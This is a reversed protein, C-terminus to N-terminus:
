AYAREKFPQIGVRRYTDVFREGETRLDLYTNLVEEIVDPVADAAFSPGLIDGISADHDSNGGLTIQYFEAGKKDVGLIGINGVHHHGCANMCGSINLDLHGLDYVKDLDEFRRTIAEAIPISKANALSCFDGGPCSIIDTIFGIHARAMNHQELAQWVDFLDKQPVDALAINQEHTTRLEGFTYKDALDAIFNMEETTMDGPAIGARKLSITVIRYGKVKHAHTNINFWQKFKPHESFLDTFDEDALDQYDFPTFEEDLKKLIEPQIKLAERTHEFEAEVKQAFVEPTLAKVLIKIRAKYKNDRRGHLNYVRLVAELYAILDERPLFERIVSGIIPTRGLGGGAMIKYGIEGAENRVIYVGIDHFATAARDKEELASVAIKFKRPLFAFEPHFTSWQRILECTPRPDAIEGAVVGAYQDTTTNRICNGSTQIAHMQVTALEALIDPVDELAPWNLQINQRTSVHAYGRDYKTSVEAVKRLQKSNMLGYPVAIRLMPAYRQVYLGNQLRLPRYEDESLKGALYRETQDRFQAVRENVLQQDFDTYLYM